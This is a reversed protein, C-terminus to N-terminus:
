FEPPPPPDKVEFPEGEPSGSFMMAESYFGATQIRITVEKMGSNEWWWGHLGTYPAKYVGSAQATEGAEFRESASVPKGDPVTHFDFRVPADAKWSYIMTSGEPLRYKYEVAQGPFLTLDIADIKYTGKTPDLPGEPRAPYPAYVPPVGAPIGGPTQATQAQQNGQAPQASGTTACGSLLTGVAVACAVATRQLSTV